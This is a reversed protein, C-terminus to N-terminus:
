PGQNLGRHFSNGAPQLVVTRLVSTSNEQQVMLAGCGWWSLPVFTLSPQYAPCSTPASVNSAQCRQSSCGWSLSSHIHSARACCSPKVLWSALALRKELSSVVWLFSTLICTKFESLHDVNNGVCLRGRGVVEAPKTPQMSLPHKLNYLSMLPTLICSLFRALLPGSEMRFHLSNTPTYALTSEM